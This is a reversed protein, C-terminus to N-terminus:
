GSVVEVWADLGFFSNTVAIPSALTTEVAKM